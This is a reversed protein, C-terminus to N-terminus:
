ARPVQRLVEAYRSPLTDGRGLLSPVFDVFPPCEGVSDLLYFGEGISWRMRVGANKEPLLDLPPRHRHLPSV